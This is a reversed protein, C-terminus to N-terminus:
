RCIGLLYITYTHEDQHYIRVSDSPIISQSGVRRIRCGTALESMRLHEFEWESDTTKM